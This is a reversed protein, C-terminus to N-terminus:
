DVQEIVVRALWGHHHKKRGHIVDGISSRNIRHQECFATLNYVEYANGDPDTVIYYRRMGKPAVRAAREDPTLQAFQDRIAAGFRKVVDAAHKVGRKATSLKERHENTFPKGRRAAQSERHNARAEPTFLHEPKGRRKAAQRLNELAQGERKVGVDSEARMRHNFGRDREYCRTQDIWYQERAILQDPACYELVLFEFAEAGYKDWAHQLYTNEHSKVYRRDLMERHQTWRRRINVSSGIYVKGTPVCLIQYIGSARPISNM